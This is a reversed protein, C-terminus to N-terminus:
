FGFCFLAGIFSLFLVRRYRCFISSRYVRTITPSAETILYQCERIIGWFKQPPFSFVPLSPRSISRRSKWKMSNTNASIKGPTFTWQHYNDTPVPFRGIERNLLINTYSLPTHSTFYYDPSTVSNSILFIGIMYFSRFGFNRSLWM